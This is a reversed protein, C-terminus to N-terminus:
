GSNEAVHIDVVLVRFTFTCLILGSKLGSLLIPPLFTFAKLVFLPFLVVSISPILNHIAEM